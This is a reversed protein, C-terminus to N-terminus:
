PKKAMSLGPSLHIVDPLGPLVNTSFSQHDNFYYNYELQGGVWLLKRAWRKDESEQLWHNDHRYGLVDHWTRRLFFMPGISASLAHKGHGLRYAPGGVNVGVHSMSALKGACDSFLLTQTLKVGFAKHVHVDVVLTLGRNIVLFGKRDIKGKYISANKNYKPHIALGSYRIGLVVRQGQAAHVGFFVFFLLTLGIKKLPKENSSM